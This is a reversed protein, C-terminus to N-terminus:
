VFFANSGGLISFEKLARSSSLPNLSASGTKLYGKQFDQLLLRAGRTLFGLFKVGVAKNKPAEASVSVSIDEYEQKHDTEGM